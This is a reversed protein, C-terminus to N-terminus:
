LTSDITQSPKNKSGRPLTCSLHHMDSLSGLALALFYRPTTAAYTHQHAVPHWWQQMVFVHCQVFVLCAMQTMDAKAHMWVIDPKACQIVSVMVLPFPPLANLDVGDGKSGFRGMDCAGDYKVGFGHM